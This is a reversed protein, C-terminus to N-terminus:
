EKTTYRKSKGSTQMDTVAFPDVMALLMDLDAGDTANDALTLAGDLMTGVDNELDTLMYVDIKTGGWPATGETRPTGPVRVRCPVHGPCVPEVRRDSRRRKM